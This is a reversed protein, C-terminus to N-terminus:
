SGNRAEKNNRKQQVLKALGPADIPHEAAKEDGANHQQDGGEDQLCPRPKPPARKGSRANRHLIVHHLSAFEQEAGKAERMPGDIGPPLVPPPPSQRKRRQRESEEDVDN